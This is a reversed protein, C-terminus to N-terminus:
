VFAPRTQVQARDFNWIVWAAAFKMVTPVGAYAWALATLAFQSNGPAAQFGALGLLPLGVGVSLALALKTTLNWLGFYAGQRSPGDQAAANALDGQMASPLALDAGLGLGTLICIVLFITEDGPGLFIAGMFFVASLGMALGWARAKGLRYSLALWLPAALLGAGVYAVLFLRTMDSSAMLRYEAYLLLLGAPLGNALGNLFYAGLLPRLRRDRAMANLGSWLSPTPASSRPPEPVFALAALGTVILLPITLAAMAHMMAPSAPDLQAIIPLSSALLIGAINLSERFTFLRSREHYHGAIDAIWAQHPLTMMTWGLYLLMAWGLLAWPSDEPTPTFLAWLSLGVLPLGAAIWIKRGGYRDCLWGIAPDTIFDWLRAALLVFGIMAISFGPLAAYAAPLYLLLPISAAALPLAPAGLLTARLFSLRDAM